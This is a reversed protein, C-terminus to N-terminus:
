FWCEPKQPDAFGKEVLFEWIRQTEERSCTDPETFKQNFVCWRFKGHVGYKPHTTNNKSTIYHIAGYSDINGIVWKVEHQGWDKVIERRTKVNTKNEDM